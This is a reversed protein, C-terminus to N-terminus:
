QFQSLSKLKEIISNLGDLSCEKMPVFCESEFILEYKVHVNIFYFYTKNKNGSLIFTIMDNEFSHVNKEIHYAIIQENNFIISCDHFGKRICFYNQGVRNMESDCFLCNYNKM